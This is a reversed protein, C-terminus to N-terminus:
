TILITITSFSITRGPPVRPAAVIVQWNSPDIIATGNAGVVYLYPRQWLESSFRDICWFSARAIQNDGNDKSIENRYVNRDESIGWIAPRDPRGHRLILM